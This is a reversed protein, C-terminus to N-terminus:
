LCRPLHDSAAPVDQPQLGYAALSDATMVPTFLVFHNGLRLVSDSYIMFDLRGPNFAINDDHWTYTM